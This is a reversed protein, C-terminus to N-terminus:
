APGETQAPCCFVFLRLAQCRGSAPGPVPHWSPSGAPSLGAQLAAARWWRAPHRQRSARLYAQYAAWRPWRRGVARLLTFRGAAGALWEVWRAPHRLDPVTCVAVGGPQLVRACERLIAAPDAAYELVSSAVVADFAAAAFPLRRWGPSLQVWGAGHGTDRAAAGRLMQRSIDCGATRLGAGALSHVLEGTGCGLDLV